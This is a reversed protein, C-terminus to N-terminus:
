RRSDKIEPIMRVIDTMQGYLQSGESFVFLFEPLRESLSYRQEFSGEGVPVFRV